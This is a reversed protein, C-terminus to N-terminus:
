RSLGSDQGLDDKELTVDGVTCAEELIEDPPPCTEEDQNGQNGNEASDDMFRTSKEIRGKIERVCNDWIVYEVAKAYIEKIMHWLAKWGELYLTGILVSGIEEVNKQHLPLVDFVSIKKLQLKQFAMDLEKRYNEFWMSLTLDFAGNILGKNLVDALYSSIVM